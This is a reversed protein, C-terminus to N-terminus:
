HPAQIVEEWNCCKSIHHRYSKKGTGANALISYSMKGADAKSLITGTQIGVLMLM